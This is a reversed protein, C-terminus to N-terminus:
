RWIIHIDSNGKLWRIQIPQYTSPYAQKNFSINIHQPHNRSYYIDYNKNLLRFGSITCQFLYVTDWRSSDGVLSLNPEAHGFAETFPSVCSSFFRFCVPVDVPNLLFIQVGEVRGVANGPLLSDVVKAGKVLYEVGLQSRGYPCSSGCGWFVCACDPVRSYVCLLMLTITRSYLNLKAGRVNWKGMSNVPKQSSNLLILELPFGFIQIIFGVALDWPLPM